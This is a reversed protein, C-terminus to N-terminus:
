VLKIYHLLRQAPWWHSPTTRFISAAARAMVSGCPVIQVYDVVLFCVGLPWSGAGTGDYWAARGNPDPLHSPMSLYFTVNSGAAVVVREEWRTRKVNVPSGAVVRTVRHDCETQLLSTIGFKVQFSSAEFGM